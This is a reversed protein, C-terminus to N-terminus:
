RKTLDPRSRYYPQRSEITLDAVPHWGIDDYSGIATSKVLRWTSGTATDIKLAVKTGPELGDVQVIQYRGAPPEPPEKSSSTGSCGSVALAGLASLLPSRATFFKIRIAM